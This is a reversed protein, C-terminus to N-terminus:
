SSVIQKFRNITKSDTVKTEEEVKGSLKYRQLYGLSKDGMLQTPNPIGNCFELGFFQAEIYTEPKVKLEKCRAAVKTFAVMSSPNSKPDDLLSGTMEIVRRVYAKYARETLELNPDQKVDLQAQYTTTIREHLSPIRTINFNTSLSNAIEIYKTAADKVSTFHDEFDNYFELANKTIDKLITYQPTGAKIMTIGRHKLSKRYNYIVQGMLMTSEADTGTIKEAKKALKNNTALVKRHTLSYKKSLKLM